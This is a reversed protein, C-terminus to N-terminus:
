KGKLISAGGQHPIGNLVTPVLQLTKGDEVHHWTLKNKYRFTQAANASKLGLDQAFQKDALLFDVTTGKLNNFQYEALKFNSLDIYGNVFPIPKNSTIKNVKSNASLWMSNGPTGSWKGQNVPLRWGNPAAWKSSAEAGLFKNTVAAAVFTGILQSKAVNDNGIMVSLSEKAKKPLWMDATAVSNFTNSVYQASTGVPDSGLSTILNATNQLQEHTANFLGKSVKIYSENIYAAVADVAPDRIIEVARAAQAAEPTLSSGATLQGKNVDLNSKNAPRKWDDVMDSYNGGGVAVTALGLAISSGYNFSNAYSKIGSSFVNWVAQGITAPQNITAARTSSIPQSVYSDYTNVIPAVYPQVYTNYTPQIVNKYVNTALNAYPTILNTTTNLVANTLGNIVQSNTWNACLGTPDTMNIPNNCYAYLNMDGATFGSPDESLFRGTATDYWRGGYFMLSAFLPETEQCTYGYRPIDTEAISGGAYTTVTQHCNGFADYDEHIQVTGTANIADGVSQQRDQLTWFLDDASSTFGSSGIFWHERKM